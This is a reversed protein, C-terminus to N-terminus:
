LAVWAQITSIINDRKHMTLWRQDSLDISLWTDTYKLLGFLNGQTDIKLCSFEPPWGRSPLTSQPQGRWLESSPYDLDGLTDM